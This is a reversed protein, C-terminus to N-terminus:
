CESIHVSHVNSRSGITWFTFLVFQGFTLFLFITRATKRVSCFFYLRGGESTGGTDEGRQTRDDRFEGDAESRSYMGEM